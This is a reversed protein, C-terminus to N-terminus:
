RRQKQQMSLVIGRRGSDLIELRKGRRHSYLRTQTPGSRFGQLCTKERSQEYLVSCSWYEQIIM